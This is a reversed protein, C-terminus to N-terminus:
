LAGRLRVGAVVNRELGPEIYRGELGNIFVSATYEEDTVNRVSVFLGATVRGIPRDVGATLDLLNAAEVKQTNADNAYYSGTRRFAGEAYAGIAHEYRVGADLVSAPIGASENDDFVGLDNQYDLYTNGSLTGSLRASLGYDTAFAFALELGSRRSKGATTYYAGGDFPIIDNEVTLTYAAVDYTFSDWGKGGFPLRGRSGVEFTLSHAPELFPNLGTLTDFPAPPDVENFAPAEIGSAVSAYLSQGERLRYSVALRPSARKLTRTDDLSPDDHDEFIWHIFDWRAGASLDWREGLRASLESFIGFANIGERKNALLETGRSGGPGLNYFLVTGDQYADDIGTTWRLDGADGSALALSAIASGGTHIRQFDRYRDRESRRITKPEAFAAAQFSSGGELRHTLRAGIRGIRNDRRSNQALYAPAAQRPDEAAEEETLAGPQRQLNRTATLYLALGTRPSLDAEISSQALTQSNGSHVRWGDSNTTSVGIRVRATGARLGIEGQQRAYGFSGFDARTTFFPEDFPSTTYLDILGGSAPGFLASTNSRVVRIAQVAGLDALDLSTRGDPETLPFGNLQIRIGRTTGANSRDGAGRAGFGRMTIRIDQAGSRSQALLGPVAHLAEDLGAQRGDKWSRAFVLTTAMPARLPDLPLRDSEIQLTDGLTYVREPAPEPTEESRASSSVLIMGTLLALSSRLVPRM